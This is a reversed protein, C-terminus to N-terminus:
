RRRGLPTCTWYDGECGEEGEEGEVGLGREGRGGPCGGHARHAGERGTGRHGEAEIRGGVDTVGVGILGEM